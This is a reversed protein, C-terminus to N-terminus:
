AAPVAMALIAVNIAQGLVRFCTIYHKFHKFLPTIGKKEFYALDDSTNSVARHLTSLRADMRHASKHKPMKPEEFGREFWM